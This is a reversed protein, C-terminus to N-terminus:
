VLCIERQVEGRFFREDLNWAVGIREYCTVNDASPRVVLCALNRGRQTIPVAWVHGDVLFVHSGESLKEKTDHLCVSDESDFTITAADWQHRIAATVGYKGTSGCYLVEALRKCLSRVVLERSPRAPIAVSAFNEEGEGFEGLGREHLGVRCGTTSAWSWSPIGLSRLEGPRRLETCCGDRGWLLCCPFQSEWLGFVCRDGQVGGEVKGILGQLAVLKDGVHTLQRASYEAVIGSWNGRIQEARIDRRAPCRRADYRHRLDDFSRGRIADLDCPRADEAAITTSCMWVLADASYHIVRPSLIWEQTIWARNQLPGLWTRRLQSHPTTTTTTTTAANRGLFVQQRGAEEEAQEASTMPIAVAGLSERPIFCGGAGDAAGSASITLHAQEYVTGMKPAERAWDAKDDADQLICLSDIWLYRLGLARTIRIADRFTKSLGDLPIRRRHQRLTGSTTTLPPQGANPPGWCHSLAVYRGHLLPSEPSSPQQQEVLRVQGGDAPSVDIIRTPLIPDSAVDVQEGGLTKRCREHNRLCDDLHQKLFEFCGESHSLGM